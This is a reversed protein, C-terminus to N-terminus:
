NDLFSYRANMDIKINVYKRDLNMRKNQNVSEKKSVM